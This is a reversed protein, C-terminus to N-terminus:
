AAWRGTHAVGDVMEALQLQARTEAASVKLRELLQLERYESLTISRGKGRPKEPLKLREAHKTVTRLAVGFHDAIHQSRVLAAWMSRFSNDDTIAPEPGMPRPPFGRLKGRLSVAHQSIGLLAGIQGQTLNPDDWLRRFEAITLPKGRHASM